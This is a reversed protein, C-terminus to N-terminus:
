HPWNWLDLALWLYENDREDRVMCRTQCATRSPAVVDSHTCYVCPSRIIYAPMTLCIPFILFTGVGAEFLGLFLRCVLLGTFSHAAPMVSLAIGWLLVIGALFKGLPMKVLLYAILPQAVLQALYVVAGLWSYQHGVLNADEVLGFVSAYALTAKDLAQLFYTGLVVPLVFLDIKRLVRSNNEPTLAIRQGSERLIKNAKDNKFNAETHEPKTEVHDIPTKVGTDEM